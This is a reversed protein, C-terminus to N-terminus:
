ALDIRYGREVDRFLDEVVTSAGKMAQAFPSGQVAGGLAVELKRTAAGIEDLRAPSALVPPAALVHQLELAAAEAAEIGPPNETVRLAALQSRLDDLDGGGATEEALECLALITVADRVRRRESLPNGTADLALWTREGEGEEFACVYVREGPQAEAALVATAGSETAIRELEEALTM